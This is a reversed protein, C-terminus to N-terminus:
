GSYVQWKGEVRVYTMGNSMYHISTRQDNMIVKREYVRVGNNERTLYLLLANLTPAIDSLNQEDGERIFAHSM